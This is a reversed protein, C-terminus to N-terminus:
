GISRSAPRKALTVTASQQKGAATSWTVKVHQGPSDYRVDFQLTPASGVSHTGFKTIVDGAVIGAKAAPSTAVVGVVHAGPSSSGGAPATGTAPAALGGPAIDVGLFGGAGTVPISPRAPRIPSGPRFLHVRGSRAAASSTSGWASFGIGVGLAIMALGALVAGVIVWPLPVRRRWQAGPSAAPPANGPGGPWGPGWGYWPPPVGWPPTGWPSPGWQSPGWPPAAGAADPDGPDQGPPAQPPTGWPATPSHPQSPVEATDDPAGAAPPTNVSPGEGQVGPPDDSM